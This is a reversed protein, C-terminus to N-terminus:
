RNLGSFYPSLSGAIIPQWIGVAIGFGILIILIGLLKYFIRTGGEAGLHADAWAVRGFNTLFWDAKWVLLFGVFAIIIGLIFRGWSM